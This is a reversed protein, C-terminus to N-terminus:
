TKSATNHWTRQFPGAGRGDQKRKQAFDKTKRTCIESSLATAAVTKNENRRLTTPKGLVAAALLLNHDNLAVFLVRARGFGPRRKKSRGFIIFVLVLSGSLCFRWNDSSVIKTNFPDFLDGFLGELTRYYCHTSKSNAHHLDTQLRSFSLVM